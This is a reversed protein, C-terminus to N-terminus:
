IIRHEIKTQINLESSPTYRAVRGILAPCVPWFLAYLCKFHMVKKILNMYAILKSCRSLYDNKDLTVVLEHLTRHVIVLPQCSKLNEPYSLPIFKYYLFKTFTLSIHLTFDTLTM